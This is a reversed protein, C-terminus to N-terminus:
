LEVIFKQEIIKFKNNDSSNEIFDEFNLLLRVAFSHSYDIKKLKESFIYGNGDNIMSLTLKGRSNSNWQQGDSMYLSYKIGSVKTEVIINYEHINDKDFVMFTKTSM